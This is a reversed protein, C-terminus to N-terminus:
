GIPAIKVFMRYSCNFEVRQVKSVALAEEMRTGIQKMMVVDDLPMEPCVGARMM